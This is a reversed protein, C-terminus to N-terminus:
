SSSSCSVLLGGMFMRTRRLCLVMALLHAVDKTCSFLAQLKLNSFGQRTLQQRSSSFYALGWGSSVEFDPEGASM